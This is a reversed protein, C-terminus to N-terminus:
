LSHFGLPSYRCCDAAANKTVIADGKPNGGCQILLGFLGGDLIV